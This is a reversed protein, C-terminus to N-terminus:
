PCQTLQQTRLCNSAPGNHPVLVHLQRTTSNGHSDRAEVELSYTRGNTETGTREITLCAGTEDWSTVGSGSSSTVNVIKMEAPGECQDTASAGLEVATRIRVVRHNGPFVCIDSGSLTPGQSDVIDLRASANSAFGLKDYAMLQVSASGTHLGHLDVTASSGIQAGAADLWRLDVTGDERDSSQSGDLRVNTGQPSACEITFPSTSSTTTPTAVHVRAIPSTNAIGGFATGDLAIETGDSLAGTFSFAVVFRHTGVDWRALIAGTTVELFDYRGDTLKAELSGAFSTFALTNGQLTGVAGHSARLRLIEVNYGEMSFPLSSITLTQLEAVCQSRDANCDTLVIEFGGGVDIARPALSAVSLMAASGDDLIGNHRDPIGAVGNQPTPPNSTYTPGYFGLVTNFGFPYQLGEHCVSPVPTLAHSALDLLSGQTPPAAFGWGGLALDREDLMTTHPGYELAVRNTANQWELSPRRFGTVQEALWGFHGLACSDRLVRRADDAAQEAEVEPNGVNIGYAMDAGSPNLITKPIRTALRDLRLQGAPTSSDERWSPTTPISRPVCAGTVTTTCSRDVFSIVGQSVGRVVPPTGLQVMESRQACACGGTNNHFLASEAPDCPQIRRAFDTVGVCDMAFGGLILPPDHFAPRRECAATIAAIVLLIRAGM